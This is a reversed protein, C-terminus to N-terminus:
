ELTLADTKANIVLRKGAPARLYALAEEDPLGFTLSATGADTSGYAYGRTETILTFPLAVNTGENCRLDLVGSSTATYRLNGFCAAIPAPAGVIQGTTAQNSSPVGAAGAASAAAAAPPAAEAAAFSARGTRDPVLLVQGRLVQANIVLIADRPTSVIRLGTDNIRACAGMLLVGALTSGLRLWRLIPRTLFPSHHQPTM